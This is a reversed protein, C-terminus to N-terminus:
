EGRGGIYRAQNVSCPRHGHHSTRPDVYTTQSRDRRSRPKAKKVVPPEPPTERLQRAHERRRALNIALEGVPPERRSFFPTLLRTHTLTMYGKRCVMM